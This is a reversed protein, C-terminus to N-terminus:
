SVGHRLGADDKVRCRATRVTGCRPRRKSRRPLREVFAVRRGARFDEPLQQGECRGGDHGGDDDAPRRQDPEVLIPEKVHQPLWPGLGSFHVVVGILFEVARVLVQQEVV